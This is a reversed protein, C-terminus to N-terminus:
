NNVVAKKGFSFSYYVGASLRDGGEIEAFSDTNFTQKLPIQYQFNFTFKGAFVQAGLTGLLSHGGTNAERIGKNEHYGAQEYYIGVFPIVSAKKMEFYYFTNGSINYQNGFRYELNNESNIKFSSEVNIGTKQYRITYNGSLLYDLSGSGLQFNRNVLEGNDEKDFEGLPLKLGVGLNLSHMISQSLDNGTNFPSYYVMVMPDGVGSSYVNQHSGKMHNVMYPLIYRVQFRKGLSFRGLLDFRQYTDDSFEDEFYYDDNDIYAHFTARSYKVGIFHTNRVPLFGFYLGSLNCGCVDCATSSFTAILALFLIILKKNM